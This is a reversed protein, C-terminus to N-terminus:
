YILIRLKLSFGYDYIKRLDGVNILYIRASINDNSIIDYSTYADQLKKLEYYTYLFEYYTTILQGIRGRIPIGIQSIMEEIRRHKVVEKKFELRLYDRYQTNLQTETPFYEISWLQFTYIIQQTSDQQSFCLSISFNFLIFIYPATKVM